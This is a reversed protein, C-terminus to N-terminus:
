RGCLIERVAPPLDQGSAVALVGLGAGLVLLGLWLVRRRRGSGVDGVTVPEHVPVLEPEHFPDAGPDVELAALGEVSAVEGAAESLEPESEPAGHLLVESALGQLVRANGASARHLWDLVPRDFRATVEASAGASTLRGKIFAATETEDMPESYRVEQLDTGLAALVRGTREDDVPAVLLRLAGGSGEALERWRRASEAPLASADDLMLLLPRGQQSTRRALDRLSAVADGDEPEPEELVNLTWRCLDDIDLAAYPVYACRVREGLRAEFVRLLMSKGIGAPGTLAAFRRGQRFAQILGTLAAESAERAVYCAPDAAV